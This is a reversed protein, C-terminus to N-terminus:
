DVPVPEPAAAEEVLTIDGFAEGQEAWLGGGKIMELVALFLVVVETRTKCAALLPSFPLKGLKQGLAVTIEEIKESV